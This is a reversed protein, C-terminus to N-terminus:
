FIDINYSLIESTIFSNQLECRKLREEFGGVLSDSRRRPSFINSVAEAIREFSFYSNYLCTSEVRKIKKCDLNSDDVRWFQHSTLM